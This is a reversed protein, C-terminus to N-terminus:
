RVRSASQGHPRVPWHAALMTRIASNGVGEMAFTAFRRSHNRPCLDAALWQRRLYLRHATPVLVTIHREGATLHVQSGDAAVDDLSLHCVARELLWCDDDSAPHGHADCVVHALVALAPRLADRHRELTTLNLLEGDRDPRHDLWAVTDARSLLRAGELAVAAEAVCLGSDRECWAALEHLVEGVTDRGAHLTPRRECSGCLTVVTHIGTISEAVALLEPLTPRAPTPLRRPAVARAQLAACMDDLTVTPTDIATLWEDSDARLGDAIVLWATIDAHQAAMRVAGLAAPTLNHAHTIVLNRVAATALFPVARLLSNELVRTDGNEGRHGLADLIDCLLDQVRYRRAPRRATVVVATHALAPRLRRYGAPRPVGIDDVVYMRTM